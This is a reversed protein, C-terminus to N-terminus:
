DGPAALSAALDRPEAGAEGTVAAVVYTPRDLSRRFMRALYEGFVGLAFLQAGSMISILSALFPFGPLSGRMFYTILVYGLVGIGFITFFFGIISALRLPTTSYGTVLVVVMNLFRRLNYNSSGERRPDYHVPVTGVKTAGWSLLVDLLVDTSRYDEFAGRLRTAFARFPAQDSILRVGTAKAVAAKTWRSLADRLQSHPASEPTAYVVDCGEELRRLLKPIESPPDDDLTVTVAYRALRVGCLLANHQGFNRLLCVGRVRGDTAAIRRVVDWSRDASGDNVLIVEYPLPLRGLAEHIARVVDELTRESNYVPVVVSIGAHLAPDPTVRSWRLPEASTGAVADGGTIGSPGAM